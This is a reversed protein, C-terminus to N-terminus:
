QSRGKEVAPDFNAAKDEREVRYMDWLPDKRCCIQM